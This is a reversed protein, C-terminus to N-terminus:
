LLTMNSLEQLYRLSCTEVLLGNAYIGYNYYYNENELAIHYIPFTGAKNYPVSRDDICAPLRYKDDTKYIKDFIDISQKQQDATLTDVLISHSGTIFLDEFLEPYAASTCQYLREKSREADGSNVIDRIGILKLAVYGHKYTKVLDGPKLTQIPVYVDTNTQKDLCQIKTGEMFCPIPEVLTDQTNWSLSKTTTLYTYAANTLSNTYRSLGTTGINLGSPLTTNNQLNILFQSYGATTFGTNLIFDTLNSVLTFNFSSAIAVQNFATAGSFMNLMTTINSTNWLNLPQNFATCGYFLDGMNTANSTNWSNLPQNFASCNAFVSNMNTCASTNWSNLSQNFIACNTFAGSMSTCASINWSYLPQNFASCNIFMNQITTCASVTWSNLPQNFATCGQFMFSMNTCASVNWSNLSQNFATCGTFMGSMSTCASVNWSSIDQNFPTNTFMSQMTTCTSTNWHGSTSVLLSNFALCADFMSQMNTCAATNWNSLSQNFLYCNSFMNNMNTCASVNWSSIDQTFNSCVYFMFSMDTCASTNWSTIDQNFLNCRDFMHSMNIVNSVNWSGINGYNVSPIYISDTVQFLSTFNTNTAITPLTSSTISGKFNAFASTSARSLQIQGFSTIELSAINLLFNANNAIKLGDTTSGDDTFGTWTWTITTTGDGNDVVSNSLGSFSPTDNIIPNISTLPITYDILALDSSAVKFVFSSM